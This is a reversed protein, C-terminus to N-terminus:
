QEIKVPVIELTDVAAIVAFIAYKTSVTLSARLEIRPQESYIVKALVPVRYEPERWDDYTVHGNLEKLISTACDNATTGNGRPHPVSITMAAVPDNVAVTRFGIKNLSQVASVLPLPDKLPIVIVNKNGLDEWAEAFNSIVEQPVNQSCFLAPSLPLFVKVQEENVKLDFFPVELNEVVDHEMVWILRAECSDNATLPRCQQALILQSHKLSPGISISFNNVPINTLNEFTLSLNARFVDDLYHNDPITVTLSAKISLLSFLEFTYSRPHNSSNQLLQCFYSKPHVESESASIALVDGLVKVEEEENSAIIPLPNTCYATLLEPLQSPSCNVFKTESEEDLVGPAVIQVNNFFKNCLAQLYMVHPDNSTGMTREYLQRNNSLIALSCIMCITAPGLVVENSIVQMSLRQDFHSFTLSAERWCEIPCLPHQLVIIMRMAKEPDAVTHIISLTRIILHLLHANSETLHECLFEWCHADHTAQKAVGTLVLASLPNGQSDTHSADLKRYAQMLLADLDRCNPYSRIALNASLATLFTIGDFNSDHVYFSPKTLRPNCRYCLSLETVKASFHQNLSNMLPTLVEDSTFVGYWCVLDILKTFIIASIQPALIPLLKLLAQSVDDPAFIGSLSLTMAHLFVLVRVACEYTSVNDIIPDLYDFKCQAYALVRLSPTHEVIVGPPLPIKHTAILAKNIHVIHALALLARTALHSSTNKNVAFDVLHSLLLRGTQPSLPASAIFNICALLREESTSTLEEVLVGSLESSINIDSCLFTELVFYATLKYKMKPSQLLNVAIHLSQQVIFKDLPYGNNFLYAVKILSHRLKHPQVYGVQGSLYDRITGLKASIIIQRESDNRAKSLETVFEEFGKSTKM